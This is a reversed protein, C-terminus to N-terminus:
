NVLIGECCGFGIVTGGIGTTFRVDDGEVVLYIGKDKAIGFM